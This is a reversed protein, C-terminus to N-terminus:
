DGCFKLYLHPESLCRMALKKIASILTADEAQHGQTIRELEDLVTEMQIRNFVTDGYWDIFRLCCYSADDPAPLIKHLSNREDTITDHVNGNESILSITLGM